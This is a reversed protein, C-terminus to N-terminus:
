PSPTTIPVSGPSSTSTPATGPVTGPGADVVQQTAADFEGYAPNVSVHAGAYTRKLFADWTAGESAGGLLQAIQSRVQSLPKTNRATVWIVHWGFKTHVPQSIQGVALRSAAAEFAPVFQGKTFFGLEGGNNSSSRDTSYRKALRVFLASRAGPAAAHLKGSITAALARKKVLIHSVRTQVFGSRHQDYYRKIIQPGPAVPAVVHAHLRSQVIRDRVLDTLQALTLGQSALASQFGKEDPFQGKIQTLRAQVQADSVTIGMTVAASSLVFRRVLTALYAQEFQRKVSEPDSQQAQKTFQASHEFGILADHVQSATITRGSARAATPDTL